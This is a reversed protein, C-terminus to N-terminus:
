CGREAGSKVREEQETGNGANEGVAKVPAIDHDDGIEQARHRDRAEEQNAGGVLDPEEIQQSEQLKRQAGEKRRRFRGNQGIDDGFFIQDRGVGEVGKGPARHQGQASEGAAHDGGKKANLGGKDGIGQVKRSEAQNMERMTM